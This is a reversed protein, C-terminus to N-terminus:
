PPWLLLSPTCIRECSLHPLPSSVSRPVGPIPVWCEGDWRHEGDRGWLEGSPLKAGLAAAVALIHRDQAAPDRPSDVTIVGRSRYGMRDLRVNRFHWEFPGNDMSPVHEYAQGYVRCWFQGVVPGERLWFGRDGYWWVWQYGTDPDRYISGTFQIPWVPTM